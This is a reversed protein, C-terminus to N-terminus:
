KQNQIIVVMSKALVPIRGVRMFCIEKAGSEKL